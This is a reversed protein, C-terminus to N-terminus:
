AVAKFPSHGLGSTSPPPWPVIARAQTLRYHTPFRRSPPVSLFVAQFAKHGRSLSSQGFRLSRCASPDEDILESFRDLPLLSYMRRRSSTTTAANATAARLTPPAVPFF